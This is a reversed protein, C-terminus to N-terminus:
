AANTLLPTLIGSIKDNWGLQPKWHQLLKTLNVSTELNMLASRRMNTIKGFVEKSSKKFNLMSVMHENIKQKSHLLHKNLNGLLRHFLNVPCSGRCTLDKNTEEVM